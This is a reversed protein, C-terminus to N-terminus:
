TRTPRKRGAASASALGALLSVIVGVIVLGGGAILTLNLWEHMSAQATTIMADAVTRINGSTRDLLTRLHPKAYEIASWGTGGVLLASVGLATLAKGRNRAAMLTLLAAGATLVALGWSVWPGLRGYVSLAGPRLTAPANETLPVPVTSPLSINYDRLTQTFAADSLMPRLDVVWRGRDDVDTNVTNTFLWRHAFANAQGFQGPFSSSATYTAAIGSVLTPDVGPGLRNIQASLEDATASQLAPEAAARQALAAYGTQSILNHQLWMAPVALGLLVTTLIWM